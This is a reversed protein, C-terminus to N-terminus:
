NYNLKKVNKFRGSFLIGIEFGAAHDRSHNAVVYYPVRFRLQVRDTVDLLFGAHVTGSPGVDEGTPGGKDYYQVGVGMGVFPRFGSKTMFFDFGLYSAFNLGPAFWSLDFFLNIHDRLYVSNILSVSLFRESESKLEENIAMSSGLSLGGSYIKLPTNAVNKESSDEASVLGSFVMVLTVALIKNM